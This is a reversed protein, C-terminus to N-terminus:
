TRHEGAANRWLFLFCEEGPAFVAGGEYRLEEDGVKGGPVVVTVQGGGTGKHFRDVNVVAYTNISSRDGNWRADVTAVRGEVVLHAADALERPTVRLVITAAAGTALILLAAAAAAPRALRRIM